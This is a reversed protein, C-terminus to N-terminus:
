KRLMLMQMMLRNVMVLLPMLVRLLLLLLPVKNSNHMILPLLMVKIVVKTISNNHSNSNTINSIGKINSNIITTIINNSDVVVEEEVKIVWVEEEASDVIKLHDQAISLTM